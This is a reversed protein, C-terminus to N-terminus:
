LGYYKFYRYLNSDSIYYNSLGKFSINKPEREYLNHVYNLNLELSFFEEIKSKLYKAFNLNSMKLGRPKLEINKRIYIRNVAFSYYKKLDDILINERILNPTNIIPTKNTKWNKILYYTFRQDELQGFPNSIIFNILQIDYHYCFFKIFMFTNSKNFAYKSFDIKTNSFDKQFISSSFIIKKIKHGLLKFFNDINFTDKYFSNFLSFKNDNKSYKTQAHHFCFIIENEKKLYNIMKSSGFPSNFFLKIKKNKKLIKLRKLKLNKYSDLDRNVFCYIFNKKSLEQAFHFGTFSTCGTLFIM